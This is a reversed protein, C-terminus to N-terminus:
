VPFTHFSHSQSPILSVGCDLREDVVLHVSPVRRTQERQRWLWWNHCFSRLSFCSMQRSLVLQSRPTDLKKWILIVNRWINSSIKSRNERAFKALFFHIESWIQWLFDISKPFNCACFTASLAAFEKNISKKVWYFHILHVACQALFWRDESRLYHFYKKHALTHFHASATPWSKILRFLSLLSCNKALLRSCYCLEEAANESKWIISLYTKM